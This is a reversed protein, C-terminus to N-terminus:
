PRASLLAPPRPGFAAVVGVERGDSLVQFQGRFLLTAGPASLRERREGAGVVGGHELDLDAGM